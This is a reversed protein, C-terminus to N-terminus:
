LYSGLKIQALWILLNLEENDHKIENWRLFDSNQITCSTANLSPKCACHLIGPHLLDDVTEEANRRPRPFDLFVLSAVDRVALHVLPSIREEASRYVPNWSIISISYFDRQCAGNLIPSDHYDLFSSDDSEMSISIKGYLALLLLWRKERM